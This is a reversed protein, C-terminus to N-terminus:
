SPSQGFEVIKELDKKIETARRNSAAFSQVLVNNNQPVIRVWIRKYELWLTTILGFIMLVFGTFVLPFGPDKVVQFISVWSQDLSTIAYDFNINQKMPLDRLSMNAFVWGHGTTQGDTIEYIELAPNKPDDSQNVPQMNESMAFDPFFRTATIRKGTGPVEFSEGVKGKWSSIPEFTKGDNVALEFGNIEGSKARSNQYFLYGQYKMPHNVQILVKRVEKGDELVTVYSRFDSPDNSGPYYAEEFKDLRIQFSAHPISVTQGEIVPITDNFSWSWVTKGLLGGVFITVVAIHSILNGWRNMIGKQGYLYITGNSEESRTRFGFKRFTQRFKEVTESPKLNIKKEVRYESQTYFEDRMVVTPKGLSRRLMRYRHATCVTTSICLMTLIFTFWGTKYIDYFGLQRFLEAMAPGYMGMYQVFDQNQPIITGIVQVLIVLVLLFITLKLSEWFEWFKRIFGRGPPPIYPMEVAPGIHEYPENGNM